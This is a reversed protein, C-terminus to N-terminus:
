NIVYVFVFRGNKTKDIIKKNIKPLTMFCGLSYPYKYSHFVIARNRANDNIGKELGNIRMSYGFKGNYSNATIFSGACSINSGPKNSLIKPYIKGSYYSHSVHSNLTVRDNRLDLLWLRKAWIPKTYDILIAYDDEQIHKVYHNYEQEFKTKLEKNIWRPSFIVIISLFIVLAFLLLLIKLFRKM